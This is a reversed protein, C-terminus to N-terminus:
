SAGTQGNVFSVEIGKRVMRGLRAADWNTLRVCGHSQAKSIKGPEPTGHIGYGEDSLAIWVVGVPNNPGPRVHFPRRASVGKFHYKPDYRYTPNWDISAVKLTGSPTPKDDSGVTAPFFALLRGDEGFAKVTQLSKDVELRTAIAPPTDPVNVVVIEDGARRFSEQPNLMALLRESMHFREALEERPDRYGLHALGKMAELKAPISRVFPGAVDRASIKYRVLIPPGAQASLKSWLEPTLQRAQGFGNADAFASLAKQANDGYQGDIEGPSFGSRALLVQLKIALASVRDSPMMGGSFEAREVDEASLKAGAAPSSVLVALIAAFGLARANWM